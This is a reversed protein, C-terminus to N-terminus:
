GLSADAGGTTRRLRPPNAGPWVRIVERALERWGFPKALRSKLSPVQGVADDYDPMNDGTNLIFAADPLLPTAARIFELGNIKPLHYDTVVVSPKLLPLAALADVPRDFVHVTCELNQTLLKALLDAYFKEDDVIAVTPCNDTSM